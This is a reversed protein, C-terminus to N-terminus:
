DEQPFAKLYKRKFDVKMVDMRSKSIPLKIQPIAGFEMTSMTPRASAPTPPAPTEVPPVITSAKEVSGSFRGNSIVNTPTEYVMAEIQPGTM